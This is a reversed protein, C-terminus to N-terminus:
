APPWSQPGHFNEGDGQLIILDGGKHPPSFCPTHHGPQSLESLLELGWGGQWLFVHDVQSWAGMRLPLPDRGVVPACEGREM